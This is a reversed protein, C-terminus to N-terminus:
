CRGCERCNKKNCYFISVYEACKRVKYTDLKLECINDKKNYRICTKCIKEKTMSDSEKYKIVYASNLFYLKITPM